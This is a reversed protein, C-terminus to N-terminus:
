FPFKLSNLLRQINKSLKRPVRSFKGNKLIERETTTQLLLTCAITKTNKKLIM